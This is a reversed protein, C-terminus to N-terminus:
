DKGYRDGVVVLYDPNLNNLITSFEIMLLGSSKTMTIPNDGELNNFFKYDIKFGDDEILDSVNGFRELISSSGLVLQFQLSSDDRVAKMVSKISSYNARSGIFFCIKKNM